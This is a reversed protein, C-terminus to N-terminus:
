QNDRWEDFAWDADNAKRAQKTLLISLKEKWTTPMTASNIVVQAEEFKNNLILDEALDFAFEADNLEQVVICTDVDLM